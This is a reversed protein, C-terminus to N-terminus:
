SESISRCTSEARDSKNFDIMRFLMLRENIARLHQLLPNNGLTQALTEHFLTDLKALEEAKKAPGNLLGIWTRKLKSIAEKDNQHLPGKTALREVTHTGVGLSSRIAGRIEGPNYQKQRCLSSEAIEEGRVWRIGVHSASGPGPKSEGRVGQM